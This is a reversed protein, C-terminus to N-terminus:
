HDRDCPVRVCDRFAIAARCYDLVASQSSLVSRRKMVEPPDISTELAPAPSLRRTGPSRGRQDDDHTKKGEMVRMTLETVTKFQM